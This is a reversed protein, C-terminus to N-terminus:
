DQRPRFGPIARMPQAQAKRIAAEALAELAGPQDLLAEPQQPFIADDSERRRAGFHHRAAAASGRDKKVRAALEDMRAHLGHLAKALNAAALTRLSKALKETEGSTTPRM